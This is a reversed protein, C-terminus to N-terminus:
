STLFRSFGSWSSFDSLSYCIIRRINHVPCSPSAAVPILSISVPVSTMNRLFFHISFDPILILLSDQSSITCIVFSVFLVRLYQAHSFSVFSFSIPRFMFIYTVSNLFFSMTMLLSQSFLIFDVISQSLSVRFNSFMLILFTGSHNCSRLFTNLSKESSVTGGSLGSIFWIILNIWFFIDDDKNINLFTCFWWNILSYKSSIVCFFQIWDLLEVILVNSNKIGFDSM